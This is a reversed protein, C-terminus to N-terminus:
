TEEEIEVKNITNGSMFRGAIKILDTLLERTPLTIDIDHQTVKVINNPPHIEMKIQNGAEDTIVYKRYM